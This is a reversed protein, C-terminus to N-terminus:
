PTWTIWEYDVQALDITDCDPLICEEEVKQAIDPHRPASLCLAGSETWVAEIDGLNAGESVTQAANEWGVQTGHVTFSKGLGCYDATIMKLTANQQDISAPQNTGAFPLNQEYGFRKAKYAAQDACAFTVWDADVLGVEKAVNDYTQGPIITLVPTNPSGAYTPCVNKTLNVDAFAIAYASMPLNGVAWSEIRDHAVIMGFVTDPGKELVLLWGILEEGEAVVTSGDLATLDELGNTGLAYTTQTAPDHLGVLSVGDDNPLGGLHLEPFRADNIVPSNLNCGGCRLVPDDGDGVLEATCAGLPAVLTATLTLLFSRAYSM